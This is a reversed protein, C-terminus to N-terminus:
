YYNSVLYKELQISLFKQEGFSIHLLCKFTIPFSFTEQSVHSQNLYLSVKYHGIVM